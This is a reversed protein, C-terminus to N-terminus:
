NAGDRADGTNASNDIYPILIDQITRQLKDLDKASPNIMRHSCRVRFSDVTSNVIERMDDSNMTM